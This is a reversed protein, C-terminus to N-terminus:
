EAYYEKVWEEQDEFLTCHQLNEITIALFREVEEKKIKEYGEDEPYVLSLAIVAFGPIVILKDSEAIEIYKDYAKKSEDCKNLTDYDRILGTYLLLMDTTEKHFTRGSELKYGDLKEYARISKWYLDPNVNEPKAPSADEEEWNEWSDWNEDTNGSLMDLPVRIVERDKESLEVGPIPESDDNRSICSYFVVSFGAMLLFVTIARKYLSM